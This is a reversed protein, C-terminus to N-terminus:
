AVDYELFNSQRNLLSQALGSVDRSHGTVGREM